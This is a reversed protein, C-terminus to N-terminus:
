QWLRGVSDPIVIDGWDRAQKDNQMVEELQATAADYKNRAANLAAQRNVLAQELKARESTIERIVQAQNNVLERLENREVYVAFCYSALSVFLAIVAFARIM